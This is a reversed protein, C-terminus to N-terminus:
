KKKKYIKKQLITFTLDKMTNNKTKSWNKKKCNLIICNEFTNKEDTTSFKIEVLQLTWLTPNKKNHLLKRRCDKFGSGRSEETCFEVVMSQWEENSTVYIKNTRIRTESWNKQLLCCADLAFGNSANPTGHVLLQV